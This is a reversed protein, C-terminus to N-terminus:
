SHMNQSVERGSDQIIDDAKQLPKIENPNTKKVNGIVELEISKKKVVSADVLSNQQM